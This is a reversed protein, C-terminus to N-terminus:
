IHQNPYPALAELLNHLNQANQRATAMVVYLIADCENQATINASTTRLYDCLRLVETQLITVAALASEAHRQMEDVNM